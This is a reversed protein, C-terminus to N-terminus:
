RYDVGNCNQPSPHNEYKSIYFFTKQLLKTQPYSGVPQSQEIRHLWQDIPAKESLSRTSSGSPRGRRGRPVHKLGDRSKKDGASALMAMRAAKWWMGIAAKIQNKSKGPVAKCLNVMDYNGYKKLAKLLEVKEHHPWNNFTVDQSNQESDSSDIPQKRIRRQRKGDEQFVFNQSSKGAQLCLV